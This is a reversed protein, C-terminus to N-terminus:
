FHKQGWQLAHKLWDFNFYGHIFTYNALLVAGFIVAWEWCLVKAKRGFAFVTAGLVNGAAAIGLGWYTLLQGTAASSFQVNGWHARTAAPLGILLIVLLACNTTIILLRQM